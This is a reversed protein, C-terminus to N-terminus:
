LSATQPSKEKEFNITFFAGKNDLFAVEGTNSSDELVDRVKDVYDKQAFSYFRLNTEVSHGLLKARDTAAVGNQILVNSNLSMRFGHNNTVKFGFRNCIKFLFEKYRFTKMWEGDKYCFIYDSKINYKEQKKALDLLLERLSKTLPFFRGDNSVGRENKTYPAYYYVTKHDKMKTLQQAHIHIENRDWDIDKWQLACLEGVRVGTQIAFKMAYGYIYYDGWRKMNKRRDVEDILMQIEEPSFIKDDATPTTNDCSKLYVANKIKSVPNKAILDHEMAYGFILNLLCKYALFAKKSITNENVIVQTYAKLDYDSLTLLDKRGFEDSIFRKYDVRYKVLTGEKPNETNRKETLALNFVNQISYQSPADGFYIDYLRDYMASISKAKIQKGGSLKTYVWGDSYQKISRPKGNSKVHVTEILKRKAAITRKKIMEFEVAADVENIIGFKVQTQLSQEQIKLSTIVENYEEINNM